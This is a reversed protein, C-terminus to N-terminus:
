FLDRHLSFGSTSSLYPYTTVSHIPSHGRRCLPLPLSLCVRNNLDRDNHEDENM